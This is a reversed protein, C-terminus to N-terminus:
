TSNEGGPWRRYFERAFVDVSHQDILVIQIDSLSTEAHDRMYDLIADLITQAGLEKPFGFIGTSIAPLAVSRFHRSDALLLAHYVATHLKREEDGEGWVPGVAHIVFQSPLTGATTLAPREQTVKGFERVWADSEHQITKGGKRVIAGAVGGGHQLDANAANVIADVMTESLDGHILKLTRNPYLEREIVIDAM